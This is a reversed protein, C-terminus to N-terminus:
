NSPFIRIFNQDLKEFYFVTVIDTCRELTHDADREGRWGMGRREGLNRNVNHYCAGITDDVSPVCM